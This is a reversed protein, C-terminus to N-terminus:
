TPSLTGTSPRSAPVRIPHGWSMMAALTYPGAYPNLCLHVGGSASTAVPDVPYYPAWDYFPEGPRIKGAAFMLTGFLLQTSYPFKKEFIWTAM